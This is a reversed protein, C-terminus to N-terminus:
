DVKELAITQFMGLLGAGPALVRELLRVPRYSISPVLQRLTFGGSLLYALPTHRHVRRLALQPFEREFRARDRQFVIWPLAGNASSMPGASEFSWGGARDFPEHHFRRWIFRAFPTAAPEIMVIRGTRALGRSMERLFAAADPVHHFVNIMLFADVCGAEFPMELASFQEDVGALARVDSTIAEPIVEKIFGAGSGLEVLTRGARAAPLERALARYFDRYLRRLFPKSRIIRGHRETAAPDDLGSPDDTEPLRLLNLLSM